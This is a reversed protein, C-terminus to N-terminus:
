LLIFNETSGQYAPCTLVQWLQVPPFRQLQIVNAHSSNMMFQLQGYWQDKVFEQRKRILIGRKKNWVTILVETEKGKLWFTFNWTLIDFENQNCLICNTKCVKYFM